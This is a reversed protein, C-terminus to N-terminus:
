ALFTILMILILGIMLMNEILISGFSARYNEPIVFIETQTLFGVKQILEDNMLDPNIPLDNDAIFYAYYETNDYLNSFNAIKSIFSKGRNKAPYVFTLNIFHNKDLKFNTSSLRNKMQIANPVSSNKEMVIGYLSGNRRISLNFFVSDKGVQTIIPTYSFQQKFALIEYAHSLINYSSVVEPIASILINKSTQLAKIHEIPRINNETSNQLLTFEYTTTQSALLDLVM